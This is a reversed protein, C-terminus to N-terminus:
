LTYVILEFNTKNLILAILSYTFPIDIRTLTLLHSNLKESRM